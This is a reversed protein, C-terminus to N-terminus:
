DERTEGEVIQQVIDASVPRKIQRDLRDAVDAAKDALYSPQDDERMYIVMAAKPEYSLFWLCNAAAMLALAEEYDLDLRIPRRKPM